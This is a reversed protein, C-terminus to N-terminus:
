YSYSEKYVIYLNRVHVNKLEHLTFPNATVLPATTTEMERSCNSSKGTEYTSMILDRIEKASGPDNYVVFLSSGMLRALKASSVSNFLGNEKMGVLSRAVKSPLSKGTNVGGVLVSAPVMHFASMTSQYLLGMLLDVGVYIFAMYTRMPLIKYLLQFLSGPKKRFTEIHLRPFPM